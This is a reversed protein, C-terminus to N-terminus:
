VSCAELVAISVITAEKSLVSKLVNNIPLSNYEYRAPRPLSGACCTITSLEVSHVLYYKAVFNHAITHNGLVRKMM